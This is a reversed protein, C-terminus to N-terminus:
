VGRRQPVPGLGDRVLPRVRSDTAPRGLRKRRDRRRLALTEQVQDRFDANEPVIRWGDDLRDHVPVGGPDLVM